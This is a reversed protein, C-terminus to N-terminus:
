HPAMGIALMAESRSRGGKLIQAALAQVRGVAAGLDKFPDAHHLFFRILFARIRDLEADREDRNAERSFKGLKKGARSRVHTMKKIEAADVSAAFYRFREVDTETLVNGRVAVDLVRATKADLAPGGDYTVRIWQAAEAMARVHPKGSDIGAMYMGRILLAEWSFNDDGQKNADTEAQDFTAKLNGLGGGKMTGAIDALGAKFGAKVNALVPAWEGPYADDSGRPYGRSSLAAAVSASNASNYYKGVFLDKFWDDISDPDALMAVNSSPASKEQVMKTGGRILFSAYAEAKDGFPQGEPSAQFAMGYPSDFFQAFAVYSQMLAETDIAGIDTNGIFANDTNMVEFRDANGVLTDAAMVQGLRKMKDADRLIAIEAMVRRQVEFGNPQQAQPVAQGTEHQLDQIDINARGLALNDQIVVAKNVFLALKEDYAQRGAPDTADPRHARLAQIIRTHEPDGHLVPRSNGAVANGAGMANTGSLNEVVHEAFLTAGLDDTVKVVHTVGSNMTVFFVGGMAGSTSPRASAVQGWDITTGRGDGVRRRVTEARRQVRRGVDAGRGQVHHALEHALLHQGSATSTDPMGDRFFIDNGVNFAKANIRDSVQAAQRGQHVRVSSLDTGFAGEMQERVPRALAVGGSRRVSEISQETERDLTGGTDGGATSRQLRAAPSAEGGVAESGSSRSSGSSRLVAVVSDAMADADREAPDATAGVRLSTRLVADGLSYSTRPRLQHLPPAVRELTPTGPRRRRRVREYM